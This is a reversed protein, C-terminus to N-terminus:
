LGFEISGILFDGQQPFLHPDLIYAHFMQWRMLSRVIRWYFTHGYQFELRGAVPRESLSSPRKENGRSCDGTPHPTQVFFTRICQYLHLARHIAKGVVNSVHNLSEFSEAGQHALFLHGFYQGSCPEVESRGCHAAHEFLPRAM